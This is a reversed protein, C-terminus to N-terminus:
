NVATSGAAATDAYSGAGTKIATVFLEQVVVAQASIPQYKGAHAAFQTPTLPSVENPAAPIVENTSAIAVCFM